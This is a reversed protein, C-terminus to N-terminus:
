QILLLVSIVMLAKSINRNKLCKRPGNEATHVSIKRVLNELQLMQSLKCSGDMWGDVGIKGIWGDM